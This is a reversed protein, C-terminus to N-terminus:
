KFFSFVSNLDSTDNLEMNFIIKECYDALKKFYFEFNKEDWDTKEHNFNLVEEALKLKNDSLQNFIIKLGKSKDDGCNNAESHQNLTIFEKALDLVQETIKRDQNHADLATILNCFYAAFAERPQKKYFFNQRLYSDIIKRAQVLASEFENLEVRPTLFFKAVEFRGKAFPVCVDKFRKLKEDGYGVQHVERGSEQMRFKHDGFSSDGLFTIVSLADAAEKLSTTENIVELLKLYCDFMNLAVRSEETGLRYQFLLRSAKEVLLKVEFSEIELESMSAQTTLMESEELSSVQRRNILGKIERDVYVPGKKPGFKNMVAQIVKLGKGVLREKLLPVFRILDAERELRSAAIVMMRYLPLQFENLGRGSENIIRGERIDKELAELAEKQLPTPFESFGKILENLINLFGKYSQIEWSSQPDEKHPHQVVGEADQNEAQFFLLLAQKENRPNKIVLAPFQVDGNILLAIGSGELFLGLLQDERLTLPELVDEIQNEQQYYIRIRGERVDGGKAMNIPFRLDFTGPRVLAPYVEEFQSLDLISDGTFDRQLLLQDKDSLIEPGGVGLTGDDFRGVAELGKTTLILGFPESLVKVIAEEGSGEIEEEPLPNQYLKIEQSM